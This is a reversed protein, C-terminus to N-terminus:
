IQRTWVSFETLVSPGFTQTLAVDGADLGRAILIRGKRKNNNRPDFVYWQGDLFVEMWAAFDDLAHPEPQGLESLYGTCYRAPINMCRCFSIALHTFDRCVGQKEALTESSTRTARAKMYDFSITSHVYDCIAQVRSWGPVTNEFNRWAEESLLDTDCYRSGRLYHLTEFPLDQVRHQVADPAVPDLQGKDRFIGDTTLDFNGEPAVMRTCWNGFDDRFSELPVSPSTVLYDARELDSFRSFHVNLMAILPTPQSFRFSLRCGIQIRLDTEGAGETDANKGEM